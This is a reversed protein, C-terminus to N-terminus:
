DLLQPHALVLMVAATRALYDPENGYGAEYLTWADRSHTARIGSEVETAGSNYAMLALPWTRFRHQLDSFMQMAARTEAAVDLREDRQTSVELGYQRATSSIFMWLGAGTGPRAPLNRYGSEVLPVVQLEPPLGYKELAALVDPEHTRMRDISAHLFQRGDPTGLLLNLQRLVAENAQLGWTLAGPTAAVLQEVDRQSLRRDHVPTAIAASVTALVVLAFLIVWAAGFANLPRGSRHHAAQIRRRLASGQWSAMYSRLPTQQTNLATEAIRLLCACYTEPCHGPHRALAEDCAFEQLESLQRALWYAAPNIGFLARGLLAVHVYRTDGQRHHQGEHRLAFRLDLPRLLISAPLVVFCRGPAWAAFPVLEEDSVLIRVLGIRRLVHADRIARYTARVESLLPLLAVVLGGSFLALVVITLADVPLSAHGLDVGLDIRAYDSMAVPGTYMTPAAWVQAKLPSLASGGYYIALIPLLVAAIALIRGTLLLHRFSLPRPLARNAARIAALLGAASVILLNAYIYFSVISVSSIGLLSM